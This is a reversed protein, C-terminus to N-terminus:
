GTFGQSDRGVGLKMMVQELHLRDHIMAEVSQLLTSHLGNQQVPCPQMSPQPANARVAPQSSPAPSPFHPQSLATTVAEALAEIGYHERLLNMCYKELPDFVGPYAVVHGDLVDM